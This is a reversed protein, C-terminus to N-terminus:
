GQLEDKCKDDELPDRVPKEGRRKQSKIRKSVKESLSMKGPVTGEKPSCEKNSDMKTM